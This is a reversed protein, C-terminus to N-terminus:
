ILRGDLFDFGAENGASAIAPSGVGHLYAPLRNSRANRVFEALFPGVKEAPWAKDQLDIAVGQYNCNAILKFDTWGTNPRAIYIPSFPYLLIALDDLFSMDVIKPFHCVEIIFRGVLDNDLARCAAAFESAVQKLILGRANLPVVVMGVEGSNRLNRLFKIGESVLWTTTKAITKVDLAKGETGKLLVADGSELSGDHTRHAPVLYYGALSGSTTDRITRYLIRAEGPKLSELDFDAGRM